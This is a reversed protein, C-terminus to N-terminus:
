WLFVHYKNAMYWSWWQWLGRDLWRLPEVLAHVSAFGCIVVLALLFAEPKLHTPLTSM